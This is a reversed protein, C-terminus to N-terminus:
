SITSISVRLETNAVMHLRQTPTQDDIPLTMNCLYKEQSAGSVM